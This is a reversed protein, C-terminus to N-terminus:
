IQSFRAKVKGPLQKFGEPNTIAMKILAPLLLVVVVMAAVNILANKLLSKM